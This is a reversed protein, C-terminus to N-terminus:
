RSRLPWGAFCHMGFRIAFQTVFEFCVKDVIQEFFVEVTCSNIDDHGRSSHILVSLKKSRIKSAKFSEFMILGSVQVYGDASGKECYLGIRDLQRDAAPILLM